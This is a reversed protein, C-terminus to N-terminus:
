NNNTEDKKVKIIELVMERDFGKLLYLCLFYVVAGLCVSMLLPLNPLYYLPIAMVLSALIVKGLIKLNPLFKLQQYLILGATALIFIETFVTMWAAGWYSYLPIFILYGIVSIVANLAYFKIMKKQQNLAVVAYGFLGAIFISGTALFLIKIIQGSIAFDPGAMLVMLPVGLFYGGVIMPITFIILFDFTSQIIKKLREFNNIASATALLPLILGLFLYVVNILVELVKYPAGYLGVESQTRVLSMIFIDGKFYILNLAITLAVPWTKTIIKQWVLWDFSPKLKLQKSAFYFMIIFVFFSDLSAAVLIGWLGLDFYITIITLILYIIKATVEAIVAKVMILNKQFLSTLTATLSASVFGVIAIVMGIKVITPYPLFIAVLPALSLFTISAILRITLANSLIQSENEKPNSILQTTTMQLGLDILIGFIALFAYITSYYGVGQQGLYRTMLGFGVLALAIVLAKGIVQIMTNHAIKQVESM